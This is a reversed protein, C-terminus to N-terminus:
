KHIAIKQNASGHDFLQSVIYIGNTLAHQHELINFAGSGQLVLRGGIDFVQFGNPRGLEIEHQEVGIITPALLGMNLGDSGAAIGASGAQLQYEANFIPTGTVNGTAADYEADTPISYTIEIAGSIPGNSLVDFNYVNDTNNVMISNTCNISGSCGWNYWDGFRLGYDNDVMVCHDVTVAPSGYGAEIGQECNKFLSNYVYVSNESSAAIGENAFGEIWCNKVQLIAGNHDIGDDEGIMFVCSDVVSPENTANAGYFYFGDNDDDELLGDADPIELVHSGSIQVYSAGFEGGTDCRSIGGNKFILRGNNGGLAKGECDFIFTHNMIVQGGNSRVVPQSNSHGFTQTHDGGGNTILCYSINATGSGVTIGGWANETNSTIAIPETASGQIELHGEVLINIASDLLVWVNNEIILTDGAPIILDDTIHHVSGSQFELNGVLTGSHQVIATQNISPNLNFQSSSLSLGASGDTQLTAMARGKRITIQNNPVQGGTSSVSMTASYFPELTGQDMVEVAM